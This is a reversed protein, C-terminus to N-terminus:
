ENIKKLLSTYVYKLNSLIKVKTKEASNIFSRHNIWKCLEGQLYTILVDSVLDSKEESLKHNSANILISKFKNSPTQIIKFVEASPTGRISELWILKYWGPHAMSFDIINSFLLYIKEEPNTVSDLNAEVYDMMQLLGYGLAEWFIEDLSNFYNYLNTHACGTKKAIGRLNVDKIGVNEEILLLTNEIIVEKNIQKKNTLMRDGREINGITIVVPLIM